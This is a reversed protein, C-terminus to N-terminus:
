NWYRFVVLEGSPLSTAVVIRGDPDLAIRPGYSPTTAIKTVIKGGTGFAADFTANTKMAALAIDHDPGTSAAVFLRGNGDAVAGGFSPNVDGFDFTTKGGVAFGPDPLGAPTIRAVGIKAGVQGSLVVTRDALVSVAGARAMEGFDVFVVGGAFSADKSGNALVRLAVFRDQSEGGCVIGQPDIAVAWCKDDTMPGASVTSFGSATFTPDLAGQTTFRALVLEDQQGNENELITGGIVPKGDPQMAVGFALLDGLLTPNPAYDVFTYGDGDFGPDLKGTPLFRAVAYKSSPQITYGSMVIAGDPAIVLGTANDDTVEGELRFDTTARGNIGFGSDLSGNVGIRVAVFDKDITGGVVIKGDPQVAVAAVHFGSAGGPSTSRGEQGFTTDLAGAPGRVLITAPASSKVSGTVDSGSITIASEGQAAAATATLTVSAKTSDPAITLPSASVNPPLGDVAITIPGNFGSRKVTLEIGVSSGQVVTSRGMATLTFSGQSSMDGRVGSDAETMFCGPGVCPAPDDGTCALIAAGAGGVAICVFLFSRM